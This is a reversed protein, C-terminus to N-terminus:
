EWSKWSPGLLQGLNMRELPFFNGNGARDDTSEECESFDKFYGLSSQPLSAAPSPQESSPSQAGCCRLAGRVQRTSLKDPLCIPQIFGKHPDHDLRRSSIRRHEMQWSASCPCPGRDPHWASFPHPSVPSSNVKPQTSNSFITLAWLYPSRLEPPLDPSSDLAQPDDSLSKPGSNLDM